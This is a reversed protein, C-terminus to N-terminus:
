HNSPANNWTINLYDWASYLTLFVDLIVVQGIFNRCLYSRLTNWSITRPLFFACSLFVRLRSFFLTFHIAMVFPPLLGLVQPSRCQCPIQMGKLVNDWANQRTHTGSLHQRELQSGDLQEQPFSLTMRPYQWMWRGSPFLGSLAQADQCFSAVFLLWSPFRPLSDSLSKELRLAWSSEADWTSDGCPCPRLFCPSARESPDWLVRPTGPM